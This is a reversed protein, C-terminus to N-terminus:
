NKIRDALPNTLQGDLSVSELIEERCDQLLKPEIISVEWQIM